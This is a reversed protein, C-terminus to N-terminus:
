GRALDISLRHHIRSLVEVWAAFGAGVVIAGLRHLSQGLFQGIMAQLVGGDSPWGSRMRRAEDASSAIGALDISLVALQVGAVGLLIWTIPHLKM